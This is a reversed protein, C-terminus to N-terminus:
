NSSGNSYQETNYEMTIKQQNTFFLQKAGASADQQQQAHENIIRYCKVKM